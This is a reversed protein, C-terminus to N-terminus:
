RGLIMYYAVKLFWSKVNLMIDKLDMQITVCLWVENKKEQQTTNFEIPM